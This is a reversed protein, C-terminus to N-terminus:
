NGFIRNRAAILASLKEQEEQLQGKSTFANTMDDQGEPDLWRYIPGGTILDGFGRFGQPSQKKRAAEIYQDFRRKSINLKSLEERQKEPPLNEIRSIVELMGNVDEQYDLPESANEYGAALGETTIDEPDEIGQNLVDAEANTKNTQAGLLGAQADALPKQIGANAKDRAEQLDLNRGQLDFGHKARWMEVQRNAAADRNKALLGLMPVAQPNGALAARMLMGETNMVANNARQQLRAERAMGKRRARAEILSRRRSTEIDKIAERRARAGHIKAMEGEDASGPIMRTSVYQALGRGDGRSPIGQRGLIAETIAGGEDRPIGEEMAAAEAARRAYLGSLKAEPPGQEERLANGWYYGGNRGPVRAGTMSFGPRGVERFRSAMEDSWGADKMRQMARNDSAEWMTPPAQTNLAAMTREMASATGAGNTLSANRSRMDRLINALNENTQQLQEVDRQLGQRRGRIYDVDAQTIDTSQDMGFLSPIGREMSSSPATAPAPEVMAPEANGAVERRIAAAARERMKNGRMSSAARARPSVGPTIQRPMMGQNEMFDLLDFQADGGAPGFAGAARARDRLGGRWRMAASPVGPDIRTEYQSNPMFANMRNILPGQNARRKKLLGNNGGNSIQTGIADRSNLPM